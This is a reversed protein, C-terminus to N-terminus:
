LIIFFLDKLSCETDINMAGSLYSQSLVPKCRYTISGIPLAAQSLLALQGLTHKHTFVEYFLHDQYTHLGPRTPSWLIQNNCFSVNIDKGAWNCEERWDVPAPWYIKQEQKSINDLSLSLLFNRAGVFLRGREEDLLLAGFSCSRELDFRKIGNFQQLDKYSLKMRPSSQSSGSLSASIGILGFLVLTCCMMM